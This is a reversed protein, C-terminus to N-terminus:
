NTVEFSAQYWETRVIPKVKRKFKKIWGIFARKENEHNTSKHLTGAFNEIEDFAIITGKIINDNLAGLVYSASSYLDCDIHLFSIKFSFNKSFNPVTKNFLGKVLIVNDGITSPDPMKTKFHGKKYISDGVNWDAPLGEWSDFGVTLLKSKKAILKLSNGSAVGFECAIGNKIKCYNISNSLFKSKATQNNTARIIKTQSYDIM